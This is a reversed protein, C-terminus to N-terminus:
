ASCTACNPRRATSARSGCCNSSCNGRIAASVSCTSAAATNRSSAFRSSKRTALPTPAIEVMVESGDRRRAVLEMQTGMPRARPARLYADRYSAHRPRITDPVLAEVTLGVLDQVPYDLLEAAAPNALVIRGEGDAVILGDPYAAFLSRFVGHEDLGPPLAQGIPPAPAPISV